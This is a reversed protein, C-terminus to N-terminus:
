IKYLQLVILKSYDESTYGEENFIHQIPRFEPEIDGNEKENLVFQFTLIAQIMNLVKSLDCLYKYKHKQM